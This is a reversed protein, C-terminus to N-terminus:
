MVARGVSIFQEADGLPEQKGGTVRVERLAHNGGHVCLAGEASSMSIFCKNLTTDDMALGNVNGPQKDMGTFPTNTTGRVYAYLM